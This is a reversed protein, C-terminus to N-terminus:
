GVCTRYENDDPDLVPVNPAVTGFTVTACWRGFVRSLENDEFFLLLLRSCDYIFQVGLKVGM